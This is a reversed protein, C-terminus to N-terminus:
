SLRLATPSMTAKVMNALPTALRLDLTHVHKRFLFMYLCHLGLHSVAFHPTEDPDVSNSLM